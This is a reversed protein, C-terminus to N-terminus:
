FFYPDAAWKKWATLHERDWKGIARCLDFPEGNWVHLCFQAAYRKGSSAYPDEAIHRLLAISFEGPHNRLTPFSEALAQLNKGM